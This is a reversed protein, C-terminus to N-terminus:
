FCRATQEVLKDNGHGSHTLVELVKFLRSNISLARNVHIKSVANEISESQEHEGIIYRLYGFSKM